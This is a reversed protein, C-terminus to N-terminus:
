IANNTAFLTFISISLFEGLLIGASIINAIAAFPLAVAFIVCVLGVLISATHFFILLCPASVFPLTLSLSLSLSLSFRVEIFLVECRHLDM